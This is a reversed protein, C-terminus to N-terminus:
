HIIPKTDQAVQQNEPQEAVESTAAVPVEASYSEGFVKEYAGTFGPQKRLDTFLPWDRYFTKEVPGNAGIRFMVEYARDWKEALVADALKFEDGKASWDVAQMIRTAVEPEGAWKHAQARNVTCMLQHQETSFKKFNECGFDLLSCALRYRSRDILDYTSTIFSGDAKERDDPFLKRWLVHALKVGLEYLCEHSAEFYSQSVLLPKGEVAGAEPLCGHQKCTLLYHGSIIGDTHVFLNRRETLEIFQPWISLGKTLALGFRTEMWKFQDAHSSRLVAEVEKEIVFEKADDINAFSMLQAFPLQKESANLTEPKLIFIARLLRGLFADYQSVLAVLISRPVLKRALRYGEDRRNLRGWEKFRDQPVLKADEVFKCHEKEFEELKNKSVKGTEQLLSMMSPLSTRLSDIHRTFLVVERGISANPSARQTTESQPTDSAPAASEATEAKPPKTESTEALEPTESKDATSEPRESDNM